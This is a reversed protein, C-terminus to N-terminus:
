HGGCGVLPPAPSSGLASAQSIGAGGPTSTEHWSALHLPIPGDWPAGKGCRDMPLCTAM